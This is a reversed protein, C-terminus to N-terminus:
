MGVERSVSGTEGGENHWVAPGIMSPLGAPPTPQRAIRGRLGVEYTERPRLTVSSTTTENRIKFSPQTRQHSCAMM